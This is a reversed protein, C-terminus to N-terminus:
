YVPCPDHDDNLPAQGSLRLAGYVDALTALESFVGDPNKWNVSSAVNIASNVFAILAQFGATDVAEVASADLTYQTEPALMEAFSQTLEVVSEIGVKKNLLITNQRKSTMSM